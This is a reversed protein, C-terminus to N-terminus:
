RGVAFRDLRVEEAVVVDVESVQVTPPDCGSTYGRENAREWGIGSRRAGDMTVGGSPSEGVMEEGRDDVAEGDDGPLEAPIPM